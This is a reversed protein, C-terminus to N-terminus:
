VFRVFRKNRLNSFSSKEDLNEGDRTKWPMISVRGLFEASKSFTQENQVPNKWPLKLLVSLLCIIGNQNFYVLKLQKHSVLTPREELGFL